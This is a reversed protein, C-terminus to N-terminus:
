SEARLMNDQNVNSIHYGVKQTTSHLIPVNVFEPTQGHTGPSSTFCGQSLTWDAEVLGWGIREAEEAPRMEGSISVSSLSCSWLLSERRRMREGRLLM